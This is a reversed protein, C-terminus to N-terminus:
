TLVGDLSGSAQAEKVEMAIRRGMSVQEGGYTLASYPSGNVYLNTGAVIRASFEFAVFRAEADYVGELCFPGISGPPVLRQSARVFDEGMRYVDELLSERLVLPINGVVVYSPSLEGQLSSPVRGIGDVTTEYRKEAGLFELRRHLPSYFYHLYAPVGVVYEQIFVQADRGLLGKAELEERKRRYPGPGDALFYGLGGRAGHLKVICLGDMEEPTAFSRPLRIGAEKMLKEKLNRDSEWRLMRRNGFIPVDLGGEVTDVGVESVLTGHPVMVAGRERLAAQLDPKAVDGFRDVVVFDDIFGFRRYLGERRRETVVATMFGEDKAGKLVQLACHSGLTTIWM